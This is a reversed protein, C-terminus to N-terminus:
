QSTMEAQGCSFDGLGAEVMELMSVRDKGKRLGVGCDGRRKCGVGMGDAPRVSEVRWTRRSHLGMEGNKM